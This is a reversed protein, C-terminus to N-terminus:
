LKHHPVLAVVIHHFYVKPAIIYLHLHDKQHDQHHLFVVAQLHLLDM